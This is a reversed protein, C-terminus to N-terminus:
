GMCQIRLTFICCNQLMVLLAASQGSVSHDRWDDAAETRAKSGVQLRLGIAESVASCVSEANGAFFCAWQVDNPKTEARVNYLQATKHMNSLSLSPSSSKFKVNFNFYQKSATTRADPLADPGCFVSHHPTPMTIKHLLTCIAQMHNLQHWQWGTMDAEAFDLINIRRTGVWRPLGPCLTTFRNYYYSHM